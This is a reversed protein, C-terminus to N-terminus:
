NEYIMTHQFKYKEYWKAFRLHKKNDYIYQSKGNISCVYVGGENKFIKSSWYYLKMVNKCNNDKAFKKVNDPIDPGDIRDLVYYKYADDGTWTEIIAPPIKTIEPPQFDM